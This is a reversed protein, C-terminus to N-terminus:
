IHVLKRPDAGFMGVGRDFMTWCLAADSPEDTVTGRWGHDIHAVRDGVKFQRRAAAVATDADPYNNPM